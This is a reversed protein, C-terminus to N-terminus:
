GNVAKFSFPRRGLLKAQAAMVGIDRGLLTIPLPDAARHSGGAQDVHSSKGPRCAGVGPLMMLVTRTSVLTWSRGLGRSGEQAATSQLRLIPYKDTQHSLSDIHRTWAELLM